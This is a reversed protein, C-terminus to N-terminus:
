YLCFISLEKFKYEVVSYHTQDIQRVFQLEGEGFLKNDIINEKATVFCHSPVQGEKGLLSLITLCDRNFPVSLYERDSLGEKLYSYVIDGKFYRLKDNPSEVGRYHHVVGNKDSEIYDILSGFEKLMVRYYYEKMNENKDTYNYEMLIDEVTLPEETQCVCEILFADLNEIRKPFGNADLHNSVLKFTETLMSYKNLVGDNARLQEDSAAQNLKKLLLPLGHKDGKFGVLTKFFDVRSLGKPEGKAKYANELNSWIDFVSNIFMLNKSM